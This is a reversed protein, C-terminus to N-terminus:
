HRQPIAAAGQRRPDASGQLHNQKVAISQTSGLVRTSPSINHGM